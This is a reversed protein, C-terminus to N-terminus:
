PPEIIENQDMLERVSPILPVDQKLLRTLASLEAGLKDLRMDVLKRESSLRSEFYSLDFMKELPPPEASAQISLTPVNEHIPNPMSMGHSPTPNAFHQTLIPTVEGHLQLPTGEAPFPFGQTDLEIEDNDSDQHVNRLYSFQLTRNVAVNEVFFHVNFLRSM